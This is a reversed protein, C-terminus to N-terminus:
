FKHRLRYLAISIQKEIFYVDDVLFTNTISFSDRLWLSFKTFSIILFILSVLEEEISESATINFLNNSFYPPLVVSLSPLIYIHFHIKHEAYMELLTKLISNKLKFEM